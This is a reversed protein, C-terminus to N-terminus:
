SVACSRCALSKLRGDGGFEAKFRELKQELQRINARVRDLEVRRVDESCSRVADQPGQKLRSEWALM